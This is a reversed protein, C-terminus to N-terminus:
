LRNPHRPQRNGTATTPVLAYGEAGNRTGNGILRGPDPFPPSPSM